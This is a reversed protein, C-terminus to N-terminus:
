KYNWDFEVVPFQSQLGVILSFADTNWFGSHGQLIEYSTNITWFPTDNWSGEGVYRTTYQDSDIPKPKADIDYNRLKGTYVRKYVDLLLDDQLESREGPFALYDHLVRKFEQYLEQRKAKREPNCSCSYKSKFDPLFQHDSSWLEVPNEWEEKCVSTLLEYAGHYYPDSSYQTNWVVPPDHPLVREYATKKLDHLTDNLGLCIWDQKNPQDFYCLNRLYDVRNVTNRRLSGITYADDLLHEPGQDPRDNWESAIQRMYKHDIWPALKLGLSGTDDTWTDSSTHLSVLLPHRLSDNLLRGPCPSSAPVPQKRKFQETLNAMRLSSDAPNVTVVLDAFGPFIPSDDNCAFNPPQIKSALRKTFIDATIRGVILGGFSHGVLIFRAPDRGEKAARSLSLFTQEMGNPGRNEAINAAVDHRSIVSAQTLIGLRSDISEGRWAVYVGVYLESPNPTMGACIAPQDGPHNLKQDQNGNAPDGWNLCNIMTQFNRFNDSRRGADHHWGHVYTIVVLDKSGRLARAEQIFEIARNKQCYPGDKGDGCPWLNGREDFEVVAVSPQDFPVDHSRTFSPDDWGLPPTVTVKPVSDYVHQPGTPTCGALCLMALGTTGALFKLVGCVGFRRLFKAPSDGTLFVM